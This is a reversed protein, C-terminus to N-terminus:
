LETVFGREGHAKINIDDFSAEPIGEPIMEEEPVSEISSPEPTPEILDEIEIYTTDLTDSFNSETTIENENVTNEIEQSTNVENIDEFKITVANHDVYPFITPDENTIMRESTGM